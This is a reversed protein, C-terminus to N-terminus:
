QLTFWINEKEIAEGHMVGHVYAEGFLSYCGNDGTSPLVHPVPSGFFIIATDGEETGDPVLALYGDEIIALNHTFFFLSKTERLRLPENMIEEHQSMAYEVNMQLIEPLNGDLSVAFDKLVIAMEDFASEYSADAPHTNGDFDAIVTRWLADKRKLGGPYEEPVHREVLELLLRFNSALRRYFGSVEEDESFPNTGIKEPDSSCVRIRGISVGQIKLRHEDAIFKYSTSLQAGATYRFHYETTEFISPKSLDPVWSPLNPLTRPYCLGAIGFTSFSSAALCSVVARTYVEQVDRRFDPQLLLNESESSIGLIENIKDEPKTAESMRCYLILDALQWLDNGLAFNERLYLVAHAHLPFDRRQRQLIRSDKVLSTNRQNFQWQFSPNSCLSLLYWSIYEGGYIITIGRTVVCEQIIWVRSWYENNMLDKLAQWGDTDTFTLEVPSTVTSSHPDSTPNKLNSM